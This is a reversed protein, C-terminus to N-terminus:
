LWLAARLTGQSKLAVGKLTMMPYSVSNTKKRVPQKISTEVEEIDDDQAWAPATLSIALACLILRLGKSQRINDIISNMTM